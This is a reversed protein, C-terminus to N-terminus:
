LDWVQVCIDLYSLSSFEKLESGAGLHPYYNSLIRINKEMNIRFWFLHWSHNLLAMHKTRHLSCDLGAESPYTRSRCVATCVGLLGLWFSLTNKDKGLNDTPPCLLLMKHAPQLWLRTQQQPEGGKVSKWNTFCYLVSNAAVGALGEGDCAEPSNQTDICTSTSQKEKLVCNM